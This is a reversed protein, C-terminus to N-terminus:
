FIKHSWNDFAFSIFIIITENSISSITEEIVQYMNDETKGSIRGKIWGFVLEIPNFDPSYPPLYTYSLENDEMFHEVADTHHIRANDMVFCPEEDFSNINILENLFVVFDRSKVGEDTTDKTSRSQLIRFPHQLAYACLSQDHASAETYDHFM